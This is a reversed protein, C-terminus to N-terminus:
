SGSPHYGDVSYLRLFVKAKNNFMESRKFKHLPYFGQNLGYRRRLHYIGKSSYTSILIIAEAAFRFGFVM